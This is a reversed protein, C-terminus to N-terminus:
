RSKLIFPFITLRDTTYNRMQTKSSTTKTLGRRLYLLWFSFLLRRHWQQQTWIKLSARRQFWLWPLSRPSSHFLLNVQSHLLNLPKDRLGTYRYCLLLHSQTVLWLIRNKSHLHRVTQSVIYIIRKDQGTSTTSKLSETPHFVLLQQTFVSSKNWSFYSFKVNEMSRSNLVLM